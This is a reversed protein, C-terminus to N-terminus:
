SGGLPKLDIVPKIGYRAAYRNLADLVGPGPPGDFQFYPTRGSQTATEFTVKAQNRFRANLTFDAPKAQAVYQDSVADFENAPGNAFRVSPQGGIRQALLDAAPDKANVNELPGLGGNDAAAGGGSYNDDAALGLPDILVHPNPVYTHPNPAPSLGLPDPTLYAGTIPDYYRQNNYNLGTEPDAYQGPFRIPTSEGSPHWLTNGWLTRQQYGALSGDSAVLEAPTGTLDTIISYFQEDIVEQPADRLWTRSAQTLPTFTGPQYDWTTILERDGSEPAGTQEALVAGDWTFRTEELVEGSDSEHRKAVRRGLPDYAYRWTTGDAVTVTVLRNDADWEYRWTEPKRSIRTRTRSVVRGAADYRYRFNGARSILTGSVERPGQPGNELWSASLSASAEPPLGPWSGSAMNGAPDYAYSESWEAGAVTAVRGSADLGFARNGTLLDSIGTVFGDPNYAYSRRQLVQGSMTPGELVQGSLRGLQDWDQTLALGGPLERLTERGDANFGFRMEQGSARMSVPLGAANYSWTTAAGSPTVRSMVRGAADYSTTLAHGNCSESVVRGLADRTLVIEAAANRALALRGAEDYGFSTFADGSAQEIVNGLTDYAYSVPQGAANVRRTLQGAADYSYATVAGNYDTEATLQGLPDYAYQWTLGGYTVSELRLEPDYTFSARTGDPRATAIVKDFPGYEYSTAAGAPSVHRSLNGEADWTWSEASGDSLTRSVPRGEVTWLLTTVAGVPDTIRGV